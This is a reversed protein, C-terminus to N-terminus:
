NKVSATVILTSTNKLDPIKILFNDNDPNPGQWSKSHFLRRKEWLQLPNRWSPVSPFFYIGPIWLAWEQHLGNCNHTFRRVNRQSAHCQGFASSTIKRIDRVTFATSNVLIKINPEIHKGIHQSFILIMILTFIQSLLQNCTFNNVNQFASLSAFQKYYFNGM